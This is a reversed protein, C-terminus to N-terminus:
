AVNRSEDKWYPQRLQYKLLKGAGSIPMDNRFEVSRPCKYGAIKSRCFDIVDGASLQTGPKLMLVAHVAEGWKRDPIGVVACMAVEPMSLIVSEVEVSYVNEGGTLIMDKLRDVIYILGQGDRRGADGTRFWGDSTHAAKTQEPLNWYSQLVGPGNVQIEGVTGPAVPQDDADVIRIETGLIPLGIGQHLGKRRSEASHCWAPLAAAIGSLETMGYFQTFEVNRFKELAQSLLTEDMPSAGYYLRELSSLDRGEWDPQSVILRLMTPVLALEVVSETEILDLYRKPDFAAELVQTSANAMAHLLVAIGGVHFMPLAQLCVVGQVRRVTALSSMTTYLLGAHSLVVGKAKGTTGGTYLLLAPADGGVQADEIPSAAALLDALSLHGEPTDANGLYIRQFSESIQSLACDLLEVFPDDVLVVQSQSDRLIYAIESASLRTNVPNAVAGLHWSAFLAEVMCDTNGSLITVRDGPCVGLGQLAGALRQCREELQAYTLRRGACVTAPSAGHEYANKHLLRTLRM